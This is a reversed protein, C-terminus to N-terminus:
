KSFILVKPRDLDKDTMCRQEDDPDLWPYRDELSKQDREAKLTNVFKNYYECLNEAREFKYELETANNM